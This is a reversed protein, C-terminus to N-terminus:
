QGHGAPSVGGTSRGDNGDGWGQRELEALDRDHSESAERLFQQYRGPEWLEFHNGAGAVIAEGAIGADDRLHRPLLVRGQSDLAVETASAFRYRRVKVAAPQYLPLKLLTRNVFANWESLPHVEITRDRGRLLVLKGGSEPPLRRRFANPVAVRGKNDVSHRYEGIFNLAVDVSKVVKNVHPQM